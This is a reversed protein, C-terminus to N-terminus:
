QHSCNQFAARARHKVLQQILTYHRCADQTMLFTRIYNIGLVRSGYQGM